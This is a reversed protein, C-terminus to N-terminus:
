ILLPVINTHSDENTNTPLNSEQKQPHQKGEQTLTKWGNDKTPSSKYFHYETFKTKDHFIKIKGDITISHKSPITTQAPM